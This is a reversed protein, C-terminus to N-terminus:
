SRERLFTLPRERLPVDGRRRSARVVGRFTKLAIGAVRALPQRDDSARAPRVTPVTEPNM